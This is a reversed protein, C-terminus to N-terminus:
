ISIEKEIKEIKREKRERHTRRFLYAVCSGCLQVIRVSTTKHTQGNHLVGMGFHCWQASDREGRRSAVVAGEVEVARVARGEDGARPEGVSGSRGLPGHVVGGTSTSGDGEDWERSGVPFLEERVEISRQNRVKFGILRHYCQPFQVLGVGTYKSPVDGDGRLYCFEALRLVDEGGEASSSISWPM